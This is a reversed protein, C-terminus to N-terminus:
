DERRGRQARAIARMLDSVDFPKALQYVQPEGVHDEATLSGQGSTVIVPLSPRVAHIRSALAFGTMHPMTRDTIVLDFDDPQSLFRQLAEQPETHCVVEFGRRPLVRQLLTVIAPEDDVILVRGSGSSPKAEAQSEVVVPTSVIPFYLEFSTGAATSDVRITGGHAVVIGHVVALGMGTGEGIPKTTFFPEFIRTIVHAPIGSGSDRVALRAYAGAALGLTRALATDVNLRHLEVELRGDGKKRLIYEANAGLNLLVQSLQSAHGMVVLPSTAVREVLAISSPLSARLLRVGGEVIERLDVAQYTIEAKRSFALIQRVLDRARRSSHVIHELGEHTESGPVADAILLESYGLIAALINNFDHAIGGALRGLSEMKESQQLRQELEKTETNDSGEVLLEVVRGTADRVPVVNFWASRMEGHAGRFNGEGNTSNGAAAELLARRIRAQTEPIGEFSPLEWFHRGLMQTRDGGVHTVARDGLDLLRGDADLLAISRGSLDFLLRLREMSHRLAERARRRDTDDRAITVFGTLEDGADFEPVTVVDLWRAGDVGAIEYEQRCSARTEVAMARAEAIQRSLSPPLGLEEPMRGVIDSAAIGITNEVAANAYLYRGETDSRLIADSAHRLISQLEAEHERRAEDARAREVLLATLSAADGLIGQEDETPIAPETLYVAFTGLVQDSSGLVPHSWCARLGFPLALDRFNDWLPDTALDGAFVPAGTFASTGCSGQTPGVEVGDFQSTFAVPLSPAAVHRLHVGDRDLLLVSCRSGPCAREVWEAVRTILEPLTGGSSVTQLLGRLEHLRVRETALIDERERPVQSREGATRLEVAISRVAEGHM